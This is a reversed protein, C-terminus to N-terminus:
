QCKKKRNKTPEKKFSYCDFGKSKALDKDSIGVTDIETNGIVGSIYQDIEQYTAFADKVKFFHIDALRPNLESKVKNYRNYCSLSIIIKNDILYKHNTIGQYFYERYKKIYWSSMSVHNNEIYALFEGFNYFYNTVSDRYNEVKLLPYLKGCFALTITYVIVVGHRGKNFETPRKFVNVPLDHDTEETQRVYVSSADQGYIQVGDYYDHFKSIIKM